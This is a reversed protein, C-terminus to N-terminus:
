FNVDFRKSSKEINSTRSGKGRKVKQGTKLTWSVIAKLTKGLAQDFSGIIEKDLETIESLDIVSYTYKGLQFKELQDALDSFQRVNWEGGARLESTGAQVQYDLWAASKSM